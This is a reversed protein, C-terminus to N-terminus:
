DGLYFDSSVKEFNINMSDTSLITQKTFLPSHPVVGNTIVPPLSTTQLKVVFITVLVLSTLIM